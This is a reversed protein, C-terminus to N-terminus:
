HRLRQERYFIYIRIPTDLVTTYTYARSYFHLWGVGSLRTEGLLPYGSHKLEKLVGFLICDSHM